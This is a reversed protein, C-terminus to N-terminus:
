WKKRYRGVAWLLLLGAAAGTSDILVDILSAQRTPVFAQHLEDTGAYVACCVVVLWFEPWKWTEGRRDLRRARWLLLALIAYESVHGSKRVFAQVAFITNDSIDPQFWRLLPVLIRSTRHSSGVDTSATFIVLMWGLVALYATIKRM